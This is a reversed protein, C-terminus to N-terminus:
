EYGRYGAVSEVVEACAKYWDQLKGEWVIENYGIRDSYEIMNVRIIVDRCYKPKDFNLTLQKDLNKDNKRM